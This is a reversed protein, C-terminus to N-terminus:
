VGFLAQSLYHSLVMAMAVTAVGALVRAWVRRYTRQYTSAYLAVLYAGALVFVVWRHEAHLLHTHGTFLRYVQTILLLTNLHAIGYGTVVLHEWLNYGSRFFVAFAALTLFPVWYLLLLLQSGRISEYIDPSPTAVSAAPLDHVLHNVGVLILTFTYFLLLYQTPKFAGARKGAIFERVFRGPRLTMHWWTLWFGRDFRFLLYALNEAVLRGDIRRTAAAQGCDPCYNGSYELGCNLCTAMRAFSRPGPGM